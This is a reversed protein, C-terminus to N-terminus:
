GTPDILLGVGAREAARALARDTTALPSRTAQALALYTADYATLGHEAAVAVVSADDSLTMDVTTIPLRRLRALAPTVEGPPLRGRRAAVVLINRMEYWLLSPVRAGDTALMALVRDAEDSREDGLLWSAAVSADVVFTM